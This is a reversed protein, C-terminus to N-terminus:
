NQALVFISTRCCFRGGSEAVNEDLYPSKEDSRDSGESAVQKESLNRVELLIDAAWSVRCDYIKLKLGCYQM